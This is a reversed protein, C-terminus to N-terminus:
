GHTQQRARLGSVWVGYLQNALERMRPLNFPTQELMQGPTQVSPLHAVAACEDAWQQCWTAIMEPTMEVHCQMALHPGLAFMQNSCWASELLPTSGAPLSFTEGHWQFVTMQGTALPGLWPLAGDGASVATGWGIEKVPNRTVQGGLARSM